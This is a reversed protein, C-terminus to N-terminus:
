TGWHGQSRRHPWHSSILTHSANLCLSLFQIWSCGWLFKFYQCIYPNWVFALLKCFAGRIAAVASLKSFGMIWFWPWTRELVQGWNQLANLPCSTFLPTQSHEGRFCSSSREEKKGCVWWISWPGRWPHFLFVERHPSPGLWCSPTILLRSSHHQDMVSWTPPRPPPVLSKQVTNEENPPILLFKQLSHFRM